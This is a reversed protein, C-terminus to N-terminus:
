EPACPRARRCCRRARLRRARSSAPRRRLPLALLPLWLAWMAPATGHRCGCGEGNGDQLPGTASQSGETGATPDTTSGDTTTPGGTESADGTGDTDDCGPPTIFGAMCEDPNPTCGLAGAPLVINPEYQYATYQRGMPDTFEIRVIVTEGGAEEPIEWALSFEDGEVPVDEAFPRWQPEWGPEQSGPGTTLAWHGSMTTGELADVAGEFTAMTGVCPTQERTTIVGAPGDEAPDGGDHVRVIGGIRPTWLNFVPEYTYGWIFYTGAPIESTDWVVPDSAMEYTIPRREADENIRFWCGDWAENREFINEDEPTAFGEYAEATQEVDAMTIWSPLYEQPSTQRCVAFFQHTRSNDVEEPTVDTDEEPIDYRLSYLPDISRDVWQVMPVDNWVVPTRPHLNNGAHDTAPALLGAAGGLVVWGVAGASARLRGLRRARTHPAEIAM